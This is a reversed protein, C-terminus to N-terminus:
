AQRPPPTAIDLIIGHIPKIIALQPPAKPLDPAFLVLPATAPLAACMLMCQAMDPAPAQQGGPHDGCHGDAMAQPMAHAEAPASQMTFPMVILAFLTFIRLCRSIMADLYPRTPATAIAAIAATM